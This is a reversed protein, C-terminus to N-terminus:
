IFMMDVVWFTLPPRSCVCRPRGAAPCAAWIIGLVICNVIRYPLATSVEIGFLVVAKRHADEDLIKEVSPILMSFVTKDFVRAKGIDIEAM